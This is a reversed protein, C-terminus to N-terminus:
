NKGSKNRPNPHAIKAAYEKYDFGKFNPSKDNHCKVCTKEDPMTLGKEIFLARAGEPDAKFKSASMVKAVRYLSGPGHCSECEVGLGTKFGKDILNEDGGQGTQHCQLGEDSKQPDGIGRKEAIAKAAPSGLTEIAKAHMGNQWVKYQNGKSASMHCAKCKAVGVYKPTDQALLEASVFMLAVTIVFLIKATKM